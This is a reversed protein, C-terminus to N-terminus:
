DRGENGRQLRVIVDIAKREGDATEVLREVRKAVVVDLGSDAVDRVVDDPTFLVDASQPGGYGNELNTLDHAIVLFTGGPAVGAAMHQHLRTRLAAPMHVYALVVLDYSSQEPLWTTVDAEIWEVEIKRESAIRRAKALGEHSFDVGTTRWGRSALWLANRGEGCAVDLARGPPLDAVEEVLFRNPEARWILEETRYRENWATADM